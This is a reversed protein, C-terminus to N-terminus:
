QTCSLGRLLCTSNGGAAHVVEKDSSFDLLEGMDAILQASSPPETWCTLEGAGALDAAIATADQMFSAETEAVRKWAPHSLAARGSDRFAKREEILEGL